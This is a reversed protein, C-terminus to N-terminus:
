DATPNLVLRFPRRELRQLDSRVYFRLNPTLQQLAEEVPTAVIEKNIVESSEDKIEVPIGLEQGVKMIVLALPQKRARVTLKNNLYTIRLPAEELKKRAEATTPEVGEETDGEVLLAEFSSTVVANLAPPPENHGFLFIGVPTQQQASVEYDIFVQPALLQMAPELSLDSFEVTIPQDQLIPSVIVKANLRKALDVAVDGLKADKASLTIVSGSKVLLKYSPKTKGEAVRLQQAFAVNTIASIAILLVARFVTRYMYGM